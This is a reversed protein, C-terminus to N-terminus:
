SLDPTEAAPKDQPSLVSTTEEKPSKKSPLPTPNVVSNKLSAVNGIPGHSHSPLDVAEALLAVAALHLLMREREREEEEERKADELLDDPPPLNLEQYAKLRDSAKKSGLDKLIAQMAAINNGDMHLYYQEIEESVGLEHCKASFARKIEEANQTPHGDPSTTDDTDSSDAGPNKNAQGAKTKQLRIFDEDNM